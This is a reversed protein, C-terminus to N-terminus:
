RSPDRLGIRSPALADMRCGEIEAVAEGVFDRLLVSAAQEIHPLIEALGIDFANKSSAGLCPNSRRRRRGRGTAIEEDIFPCTHGTLSRAVLRGHPLGSASPSDRHARRKAAEEKRIKREALALARPIEDRLRMIAILRAIKDLDWRKSLLLTTIQVLSFAMNQGPEVFGVNSAGAILAFPGYISSLRHSIGKPSAHVNYSAMKYHSRMMARGAAKELDVFKPSSNNLYDSAWGFLKGFTTGYQTIAARYHSEIRDIEPKPLPGYGLLSHCRAYEDMARKAEVIEHALYREALADGNDALISAIVSVEHLTRWRAMAGDAFGNEMLTLIEAAIQCARVHLCSLASNLHLHRKSRSRRSREGFEAGIDRCLELLMRLADFGYGWREELNRRFVTFQDLEYPRYARWEQKYRRLMKSAANESIVSILKPLEQSFNEKIKNIKQIDEDTFTLVIKASADETSRGEDSEYVKDSVGGRLLQDVIRSLLVADVYKGSEALKAKVIKTAIVRPLKTLEHALLAQLKGM